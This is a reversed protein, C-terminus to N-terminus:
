LGAAYEANCPEDTDDELRSFNFAEDWEREENVRAIHQIRSITTSFEKRLNDIVMRTGVIPPIFFDPELTASYSLRTVNGDPKINWTAHGSRFDSKGPIIRTHINGTAFNNVEEVRTVEKCFVPICCLVQTEVQTIGSETDIVKSEIISDSLRYIHVYDTLVDRVSHEDADIESSVKIHYVGDDEFVTVDDIFNESYALSPCSSILLTLLITRIAQYFRQATVLFGCLCSM